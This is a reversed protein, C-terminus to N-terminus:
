CIQSAMFSLIWISRWFAQLYKQVGKQPDLDIHM